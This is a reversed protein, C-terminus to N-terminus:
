IVVWDNAEFDEIYPKWPVFQNSSRFYITIFKTKSDQLYMCKWSKRKIMDGQKLLNFAQCFKM